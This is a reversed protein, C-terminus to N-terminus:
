YFRATKEASLSLGVEILQSLHQEIDKQAM